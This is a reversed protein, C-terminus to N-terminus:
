APTRFNALKELLLKALWTVIGVSREHEEKIKAMREAEAKRAEEKEKEERAKRKAREQEAAKRREAEGDQSIKEFREKLSSTKVSIEPKEKAYSSGSSAM